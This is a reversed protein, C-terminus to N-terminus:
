LGARRRIDTAIASLDEEGREDVLGEEITRVMEALPLEAGAGRAAELAIKLDKLHLSMKFGLPYSDSLMNGARMDLVASRCMGASIAEIVKDMDLGTKMGLV